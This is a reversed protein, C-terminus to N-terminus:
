GPMNPMSISAVVFTETRFMQTLFISQRRRDM